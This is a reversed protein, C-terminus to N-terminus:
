RAPLQCHGPNQVGWPPRWSSLIFLLLLNAILVAVNQVVISTSWQTGHADDHISGVMEAEDTSCNQALSEEVLKGETSSSQHRRHLSKAPPFWGVGLFSSFQDIKLSNFNRPADLVFLELYHLLFV